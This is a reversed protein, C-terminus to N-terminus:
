EKLTTGPDSSQKLLQFLNGAGLQESPFSPGSFIVYVVDWKRYSDTVYGYRRKMNEFDAHM